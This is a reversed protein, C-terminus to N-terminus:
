GPLTQLLGKEPEYVATQAQSVDLLALPPILTFPPLPNFLALPFLPPLSPIITLGALPLLVTLPPAVTLPPLLTVFDWVLDRASVFAASLGTDFAGVMVFPPFPAVWELPPLVLGELPPVLFLAPPPFPLVLPPLRSFGPLFFATFPPVLTVFKHTM